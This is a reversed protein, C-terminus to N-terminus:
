VRGQVKIYQDNATAQCTQTCRQMQSLCAANGHEGFIGQLVAGTSTGLTANGGNQPWLIRKILVDLVGQHGAGTQAVRLGGAKDNFIGGGRNGPQLFHAHDESRVLPM